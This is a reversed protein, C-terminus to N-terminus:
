REAVRDVPTSRPGLFEMPVQSLEEFREDADVSGDDTLDVVFATAANRRVRDIDSLARSASDYRHSWVIIEGDPCRLRFRVMGCGDRYVEYTPSSM